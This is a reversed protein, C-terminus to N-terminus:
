AGRLEDLVAGLCSRAFQEIEDTPYNRYACEITMVLYLYLDYLQRREVATPDDFFPRAYVEVIADNARKATFQAEMLPDAWLVREFDIVGTVLHTDPDVFVNPDWLDWHVLCPTVVTELAAAHAGVVAAVEGYRLPLEVRADSADALLDAVLREFAARWTSDHVASPDPRGFAAATIENMSAVIRVVQADIDASTAADLAPRLASLLVGQCQAMLFYPSPLLECSDDFAIVDPVPASTRQRVLRLAEVETTIIDHEYRLVRIDPPPAVKLVCASGDSLRIRHVANFWGEECEEFAVVASASGFARDVIADAVDRDVRTKSISAVM